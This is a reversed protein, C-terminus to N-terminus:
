PEDEFDDPGDDEPYGEDSLNDYADTLIGDTGIAKLYEGTIIHDIFGVDSNSFTTSNFHGDNTNFFIVIVKDYNNLKEENFYDFVGVMVQKITIGIKPIISGLFYLNNKM